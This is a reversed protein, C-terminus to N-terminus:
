ATVLATKAKRRYAIFGLGAFGLLMMAWTSPEPVSGTMSPSPPANLEFGSVLQFDQNSGGIVRGDITTNDINFKDNLAVFIGNVVGGNTNGGVQDGTGTINIFVHDDTIGGTLNLLNKLQVNSNGTVNIVVYDTASGSITLAGSSLFNQATTTFVFNGASDQTGSSATLTQAGASFSKGAESAFTTSLNSITNYASSVNADNAIKSGNLTGSGLNNQATGVFSFNGNITGSSFQVYNGGATTSSNDTAVNGNFTSNSFQMSHTDPGAIIGYFAAEGLVFSANAQTSLALVSASLASLLVVSKISM